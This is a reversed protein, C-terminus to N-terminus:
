SGVHNLSSQPHCPSSTIITAMTAVRSSEDAELRHPEYTKAQACGHRQCSWALCEGGEEKCDTQLIAARISKYRTASSYSFVSSPPQPRNEILTPGPVSTVSSPGIMVVTWDKTSGPLPRLCQQTCPSSARTHHPFLRFM